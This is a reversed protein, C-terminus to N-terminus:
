DSCGSARSTCPYGIPLASLAAQVTTSVEAWLLAGQLTSHLPLSVAAPTAQPLSAPKACALSAAACALHLDALAPTRLHLLERAGATLSYLVAELRCKVSSAHTGRSSAHCHVPWSHPPCEAARM